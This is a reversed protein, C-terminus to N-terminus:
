IIKYMSMRMLQFDLYRLEKCKQQKTKNKYDEIIEPLLKICFTVIEANEHIDPVEPYEAKTLYKLSKVLHLDPKVFGGFDTLCHSATIHGFFTGVHKKFGLAKQCQYCADDWPSSETMELDIHFNRFYPLNKECTEKALRALNQTVYLRSYAITLKKLEDKYKGSITFNKNAGGGGNYIIDINEKDAWTELDYSISNKIRQVYKTGIAIKTNAYMPKESVRAFFEEPTAEDLPIIEKGLDHMVEEPTRGRDDDLEQQKWQECMYLKEKLKIFEEAVLNLDLQKIKEWNETNKSSMKKQKKKSDKKFQNISFLYNLFNIITLKNKNVLTKELRDVLNKRQTNNLFLLDKEVVNPKKFDMVSKIASLIQNRGSFSMWEQFIEKDQKHM